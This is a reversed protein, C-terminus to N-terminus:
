TASSRRPPWIPCVVLDAHHPRPRCTRGAAELPELTEHIDVTFGNEELLGKYWDAFRTPAHGEWGGVFLAARMEKGERMFALMAAM